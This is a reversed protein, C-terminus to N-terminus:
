RPRPRTISPSRGSRGAVLRVDGVTFSDGETLRRPEAGDRVETVWLHSMRFDADEVAYDGYDKRASRSTTPLPIPRGRVRGPSGDPSFRFGKIGGDHSTLRTAEGGEPPILYMQAGDGRDAIFGLRSGDPSWRHETSSGAETHTLQFPEGDAPM